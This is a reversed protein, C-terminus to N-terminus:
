SDPTPAPHQGVGPLSIEPSLYAKEVEEWSRVIELIEGPETGTVPVVLVSRALLDEDESLTGKPARALSQVAERVDTGQPVRGEVDVEEGHESVFCRTAARYRWGSALRVVVHRPVSGPPGAPGGLLVM